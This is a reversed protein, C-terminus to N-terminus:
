HINKDEQTNLIANNMLTIWLLVNHNINIYKRSCVRDYRIHNLTHMPIFRFGILLWVFIIAYKHIFPSLYDYIDFISMSPIMRYIQSQNFNLRNHFFSSNVAFSLPNVKQKCPNSYQAKSYIWIMWYSSVRIVSQSISGYININGAIFTAM